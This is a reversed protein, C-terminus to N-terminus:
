ARANRRVVQRKLAAELEIDFLEQLVDMLKERSVVFWAADMEMDKETAEGRSLELGDIMYNGQVAVSGYFNTAASELCDDKIGDPLADLAIEQAVAKQALQSLRGPNRHHWEWSAEDLGVDARFRSPM